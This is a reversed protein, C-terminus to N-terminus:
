LLTNATVAVGPPFSIDLPALDPPFDPFAVAFPHSPALGGGVGHPDVWLLQGSRRTVM